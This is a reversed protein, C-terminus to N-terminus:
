EKPPGAASKDELQEFVDDSTAVEVGVVRPLSKKVARFMTASFTAVFVGLLLRGFYTAVTGFIFTSKSLSFLAVWAYPLVYVGIENYFQSIRSLYLVTTGKEHVNKAPVLVPFFFTLLKRTLATIVVVMVSLSCLGVVSFDKTLQDM